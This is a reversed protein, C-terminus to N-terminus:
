AQTIRASGGIHRRDRCASLPPQAARSHTIQAQGQLDRDRHHPWILWHRCSSRTGGAPPQTLRTGSESQDPCRCDAPRRALDATPRIGRRCGAAGWRMRTAALDPHDGFEQAVREACGRAGFQRLTVAIALRVQRASPQESRQLASVFLADARAASTSLHKRTATM